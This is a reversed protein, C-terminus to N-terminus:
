DGAFLAVSLPVSINEGNTNKCETFKNEFAKIDNIYSIIKNSLQLPMREVVEVKQDFTLSEFSIDVSPTSFEQIYKVIEYVFVEGMTSLVSDKNKDSMTKMIQKNVDNDYAITPTKCVIKLEKHSATCGLLKKPVKIKSFSKVHESLDTKHKVNDIDVTTLGDDADAKLSLLISARDLVSLKSADTVNELIINNINIGFQFSTLLLNDEVTLIDKHQKVSIPTVNVSAGFTPVYVSTKNQTYHQQLQGLLDSYGSDEMHKNVEIERNNLAQIRYKCQYLHEQM